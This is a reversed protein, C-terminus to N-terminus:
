CKGKPHLCSASASAPVAVSATLGFALGAALILATVTRM